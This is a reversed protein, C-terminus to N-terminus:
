AGKWRAVDEPMPEADTENLDTTALGDGGTLAALEARLDAIPPIPGPPSAGGQKAHQIRMGFWLCAMSWLGFLFLFLALSLLAHLDIM